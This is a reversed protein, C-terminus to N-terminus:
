LTPYVRPQENVYTSISSTSRSYYIVIAKYSEIEEAQRSSSIDSM